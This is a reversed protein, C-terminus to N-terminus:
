SCGSRGASHQQWAVVIERHHPVKELFARRAQPDVIREAQAQLETM